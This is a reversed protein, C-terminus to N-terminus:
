PKRFMSLRSSITYRTQESKVMGSGLLLEIGQIGSPTLLQNMESGRSHGFLWIKHLKAKLINKTNSFNLKLNRQRLSEVFGSLVFFFAVGEKGGVQWISTSWM